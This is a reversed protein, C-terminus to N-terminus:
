YFFGVSNNLIYRMEHFTGEFIEGIHNIEILLSSINVKDWPITKLVQLEAGEIDLSFIDVKPNGLALLISYL